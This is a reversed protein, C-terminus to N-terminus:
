YKEIFIAKALYPIIEEMDYWGSSKSNNELGNPNSVYVMGNGDTALLVMYHSATTWRNDNPKNWVCILIPRNTKLHKEINESSLHVSDYFFGSNSIGFSNSLEKSINDYKLVPSYRQRLDEPTVKKGYGSLIISMAVIGCGDTEMTNDWYPKNSWSATGNQKYENYVKNNTSSFTTFYGDKNEIKQQGIGSYNQNDDKKIIGYKLDNESISRTKTTNSSIENLTNEATKQVSDNYISIMFLLLYIILAILILPLLLFIIFKKKDLKRKTIKQKM